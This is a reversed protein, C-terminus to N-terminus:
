KPESAEETFTPSAALNRYGVVARVYPLLFYMFGFSGSHRKLYFMWSKIPFGKVHFVKQLRQQVPLTIDVYSGRVSNQPCTAVFGPATWISCGSQKARLAYDLDGFNHIFFIDINGVTKAVSRPILVVNGQMTDCKKPYHAPEVPEFKFSYWRNPRTRGGYTQKHTVPDKVSGVGIANPMGQAILAQHTDLLTNLADPELLTDDNLWLYYPHSVKLAEAFAMRMGGVWFLSGDGQLIEVSPYKTSIAVQTVDTSGDDVLYVQFSVQQRSLVDLCALTMRCRNYYNMLIAIQALDVAENLKPM